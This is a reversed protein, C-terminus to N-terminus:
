LLLRNGLHCLAKLQPLHCEPCINAKAKNYDQPIQGLTFYQYSSYDRTELLIAPPLTVVNTQMWLIGISSTQSLLFLLLVDSADSLCKCSQCSNHIQLSWPPCTRSSWALLFGAAGASSSWLLRHTPLSPAGPVPQWSPSSVLEERSRFPGCSWGVHTRLAALQPQPWGPNPESQHGPKHLPLLLTKDKFTDGQGQKFVQMEQGGHQWLM